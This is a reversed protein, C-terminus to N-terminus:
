SNRPKGHITTDVTRFAVPLNDEELHNIWERWNYHKMMDVCEKDFMIMKRVAKIVHKRIVARVGAATQAKGILKNTDEDYIKYRM